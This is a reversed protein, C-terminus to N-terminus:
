LAGASGSAAPLRPITGSLLSIFRETIRATTAIVEEHMLKQPLIGAAMNTICSVGLVRIGMQNAVIVESVTSMGVADAGLLRCMRIEAPTEFSPGTLGIYVGQRLPIRQQAAVKGAVDRMAEDYAESMDPFRVGHEDLNRGILPNTGTLNIHDKILMLDGPQFDLNIGGAANTVILQRIGLAGLVRVPFVVEQISYGEYFHVRGQLAVTPVGEAEGLVMKGAHGPIGSRPFNPLDEFPIETRRALRDAYAGLGSGLILGLQPRQARRARIAAVTERIRELV